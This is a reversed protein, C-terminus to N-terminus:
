SFIYVDWINIFDEVELRVIEIVVIAALSTGIPVSHSRCQYARM